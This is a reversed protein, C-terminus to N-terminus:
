TLMFSASNETASSDRHPSAIGATPRKITAAVIPLHTPPGHQQLPSPHTSPHRSRHPQTLCPPSPLTLCVRLVGGGGGKRPGQHRAQGRRGEGGAGGGGRGGFCGSSQGPRKVGGRAPGRTIPRAKEARATPRAADAPARASEVAKKGRMRKPPMPMSMNPPKREKPRSRGWNMSSTLWSVQCRAM